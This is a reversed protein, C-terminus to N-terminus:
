KRVWMLFGEHDYANVFFSSVGAAFKEILSLNIEKNLLFENQVAIDLSSLACLFVHSESAVFAKRVTSAGNKHFNFFYLMKGEIQVYELVSTKTIPDEPSRIQDEFLCCNVERQTLYEQIMEVLIPRADNQIPMSTPGKMLVTEDFPYLVGYEFNYLTKEPTGEPVFAFIDGNGLSLKNICDSLFCGRSLEQKVYNLAADGTVNIQEIM